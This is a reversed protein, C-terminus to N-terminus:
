KALGFLGALRSRKTKQRRVVQVVEADSGGIRLEAAEFLRDVEYWHGKMRDNM